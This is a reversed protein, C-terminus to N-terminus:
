LKKWNKWRKRDQKWGPLKDYLGPNSGTFFEVHGDAMVYNAGQSEHVPNWDRKWCGSTPRLQLIAADGFYVVYSPDAVANINYPLAASAQRGTSSIYYSIGYSVYRLDFMLPLLDQKVMGRQGKSDAPCYFNGVQRIYPLLFEAWYTRRGAGPSVFSPVIMGNNDASYSQAARYIQRLNDACVAKKATGAGAAGLIVLLAAVPLIFLIERFSVM